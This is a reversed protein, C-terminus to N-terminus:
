GQEYNTEYKSKIEDYHCELMTILDLTAEADLIVVAVTDPNTYDRAFTGKLLKIKLLKDTHRCQIKGNKTEIENIM